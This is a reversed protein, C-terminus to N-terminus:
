PSGPSETTFFGGALAPSVLSTPEIGPNPLDGPTPFPLRSWYEQRSYEMSPPAQHVHPRLTLCSQTVSCACVCGLACPGMGEVAWESAHVGAKSGQVAWARPRSHHKVEEGRWGGWCMWQRHHVWHGSGSNFWGTMSHIGTYCHSGSPLHPSYENASM